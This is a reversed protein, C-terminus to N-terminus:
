LEEEQWQPKRGFEDGPDEPAGGGSPRHHGDVKGTGRTSLEGGATGGGQDMM